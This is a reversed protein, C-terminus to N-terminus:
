TAHYKQNGYSIIGQEFWECNKRKKNIQAIMAGALHAGLENM